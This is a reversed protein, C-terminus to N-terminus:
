ARSAYISGMKDHLHRHVPMGERKEWRQVTTVDRNFHAAIEKWSNLRDDTRGVSPLTGHSSEGMASWWSADRVDLWLCVSQLRAADCRCLVTNSPLACCCRYKRLNGNSRMQLIDSGKSAGGKAPASLFVLLDFHPFRYRKHQETRRDHDGAQIDPFGHGSRGAEPEHACGEGYPLQIFDRHRKM